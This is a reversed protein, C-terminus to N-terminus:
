EQFHVEEEEEEKMFLKTLKSSHISLQTLCNLKEAKGQMM